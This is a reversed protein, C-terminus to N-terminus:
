MRPSAEEAVGVEEVDVDFLSLKYVSLKIIHITMFYFDTTQENHESIM